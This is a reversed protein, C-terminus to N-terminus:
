PAVADDKLPADSIGGSAGVRGRTIEAVRGTRTIKPSTYAKRMAEEKPGNHDSASRESNAQAGTAQM